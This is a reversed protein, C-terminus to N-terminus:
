KPDERPKIEIKQGPKVGTLGLMQLMASQRDHEKQQLEAVRANQKQERQAKRQRERALAQQYDLGGGGYLAHDDLEVGGMRAEERDRASGHISAAKEKRKEIMREKGEKRGGSLEEEATTVHERLRRNARRDELREEPTPFRHNSSEQAPLVSARRQSAAADPFTSDKEVKENSADYETQKRVGEQLIQLSDQETQSTNFSWKHNHTKTEELAEPPIGKSDYYSSELQGANYRDVFRGFAERAEESTLDSFLIGEERYLYLFLHQHYAFYDKEPELLQEPPKGLLPGLPYLNSKPIIRKRGSTKTEKKAKKHAKKSRRHEKHRRERGGRRSSSDEEDDDSDGADAKRKRSKKREVEKSEHKRHHHHRRSRHRSEEGDDSKRKKRREEDEERDHRTKNQDRGKREVYERAKRLLREDETEKDRRKSKSSSHHQDRRGMNIITWFFITSTIFYTAVVDVRDEITRAGPRDSRPRTAAVASSRCRLPHNIIVM